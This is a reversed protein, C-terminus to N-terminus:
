YGRSNAAESIMRECEAICSDLDAESFHRMFFQDLDQRVLERTADDSIENFCKGTLRFSAEDFARLARELPSSPRGLAELRELQRVRHALRM